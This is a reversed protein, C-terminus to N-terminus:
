DVAMQGLVLASAKNLVKAASHGRILHDATHRVPRNAADTTRRGHAQEAADRSEARRLGAAVRRGARPAGARVEAGRGKTPVTKAAETRRMASGPGEGALHPPGDAVAEDSFRFAAIPPHAHVASGGATWTDARPLTGEVRDGVGVLSALFQGTRADARQFGVLAAALVALVIFAVVPKRHDASM